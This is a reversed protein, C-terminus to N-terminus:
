VKASIVNSEMFMAFYADIVVRFNFNELFQRSTRNRFSQFAKFYDFYHISFLQRFPQLYTLLIAPFFANM